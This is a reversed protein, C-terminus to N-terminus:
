SIALNKGLWVLGFVMLVVGTIFLPSFGASERKMDFEFITKGFTDKDIEIDAAETPFEIITTQQLQGGFEPPSAVYMYKNDTLKTLDIDKDDTELIWNGKKDVKCVGYAKMTLDFSRDMEQKNLQFDDLFYAPMEKKINRKLSAPNNGVTNLWNQWQAADMKMSVKILANGYKDLTM